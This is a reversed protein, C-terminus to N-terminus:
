SIRCASGLARWTKEGVVGDALLQYDQQFNKVAKETVAGFKADFSDANLYGYCILIQQLFRVAEGSNNIKLVPMTITSNTVQNSVTM